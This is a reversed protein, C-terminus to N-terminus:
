AVYVVIYRCVYFFMSNIMDEVNDIIMKIGGELTERSVNVFWFVMHYNIGYIRSVIHYVHPCNFGCFVRAGCFVGKENSWWRGCCYVTKLGLGSSM